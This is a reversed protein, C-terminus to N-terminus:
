THTATLVEEASTLGAAVWRGGDERLTRLGLERARAAAETRNGPKEYYRGM